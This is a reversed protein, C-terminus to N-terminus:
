VSLVGWKGLKEYVLNVYWQKDLKPPCPKGVVSENYIFCREPTNGFKNGRHNSITDERTRSIAGDSEDLSAFVRQTKGHVKELRGNKEHIIHKFSGQLTVIMQYDILNNNNRITVEPLIGHTLYAKLAKNVIPLNNDLPSLNKAETKGKHKGDKTIAFYCNGDRQHLETIETFGLHMHVRNEWEHCIEKIKELDSETQYEVIIGDTNSQLLKCHGELHENLDLLLLQGTVCVSNNMRPDYLKSSDSKMVGSTSNLVIKLSEQRKDGARKLEIRRDLIEKFKKSGNTSRPMLGYEIMINPYYSDVDIHVLNGKKSYQKVAGHLGGWAFTHPVGAVDIELHSKYNMNEPQRYWDVVSKYKSIRLTDPLILDFEDDPLEREKADLLIAALQAKTKALNTLPLNYMKILGLRSQFEAVDECFVLMTQNVDHRCYEITEAIEGATLRRSLNFDVNSERIDSGMFGELVKLGKRQTRFTGLCDYNILKIKSFARSFKWGPEGKEIIFDNVEKPNFGLLIGKIIYQDYHTNNYGVWIDKKHQEYFETLKKADNVIVTEEKNVPDNFVVLWDYKFVECDYFIM